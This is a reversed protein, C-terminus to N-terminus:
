RSLLYSTLDGRGGGIDLITVPTSPDSSSSVLDVLCDGLFQCQPIKKGRLYEGRTVNPYNKTKADSGGVSDLNSLMHDSAHDSANGAVVPLNDEGTSLPSTLLSSFHSIADYHGKSLKM